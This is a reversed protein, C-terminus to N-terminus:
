KAPEIDHHRHLKRRIDPWFEHLLGGASGFMLAIGSRSMTLGVGRDSSPYYLNSLSGSSFAGLVNEFSFSRGGRDTHCVFEQSLAYGFRHKVSGHGLRFYRPDEKFLTPYLFNSFFGNSVEDAFAAGFRKGYGQAGQGYGPYSDQAQNVGAELGAIALTAPDTAIRAFLYFKERPALPPADQQYTVSFQPLVGFARRPQELKEIEQKSTTGTQPTPAEINSPPTPTKSPSPSQGALQAPVVFGALVISLFCCGAPSKLITLAGSFAAAALPAHNSSAVATSDWLALLAPHV